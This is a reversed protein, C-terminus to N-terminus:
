YVAGAVPEEHVEPVDGDTSDVTTLGMLAVLISTEDELNLTAAPGTVTALVETGEHERLLDLIVPSGSVLGVKDVADPAGVNVGYIVGEKTTGEVTYM